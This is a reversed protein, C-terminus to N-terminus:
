KGEKRYLRALVHVPVGCAFGLIMLQNILTTRLLGLNHWRRSSTLVPEPLTIIRGRRRLRRMLEFDEMIPLLSFGGLEQFM